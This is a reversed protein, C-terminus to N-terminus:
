QVGFKFFFGNMRLYQMVGCCIHHLSNPPYESGCKKWVELIFHCLCTQLIARNMSIIYDIVLENKADHNRSKKWDEWVKICYETDARIEQPISEKRAQAVEEATKPKAFRELPTKKKQRWGRRWM